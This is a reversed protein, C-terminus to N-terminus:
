VTCVRAAPLCQLSGTTFISKSGHLPQRMAAPLSLLLSGARKSPALSSVLFTALTRISNPALYQVCLKFVCAHSTSHVDTFRSFSICVCVCLICAHM